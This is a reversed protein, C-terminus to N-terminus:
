GAGTAARGAAGGEAMGIQANIGLSGNPRGIAAQIPPATKASMSRNMNPLM